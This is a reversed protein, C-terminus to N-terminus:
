RILMLAGKKIYRPPSVRERGRATIVYYYTGPNALKGHIHGDWGDTHDHWEYIQRGWRNLIVGHFSQISLARVMFIDNKGDGNPTFVNPVELLSEVVHVYAADSTDRCKSTENEAILLVKYHGPHAYTYLPPEFTEIVQGGILSDTWVLAPATMEVTDRYLLWEYRHANDSNNHYAVELPAQGMEGHVEGVVDVTNGLELELEAKPIVSTYTGSAERPAWEFGFRDRIRVAYDVDRSEGIVSQAIEKYIYDNVSSLERERGGWDVWYHVNEWGQMGNYAPIDGYAINITIFECDLVNSLSTSFSFYVHFLTFAREERAGDPRTATLTYYGDGRVPFAYRTSDDYPVVPQPTGEYTWAFHWADGGPTFIIDGHPAEAASSKRLAYFPTGIFSSENYTWEIGRFSIGPQQARAPLLAPLLLLIIYLHKM